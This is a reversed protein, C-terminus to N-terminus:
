LFLVGPSLVGKPDFLTKIKKMESLVNEGYQLKLFDRKIRGIGHEASVAGKLSVVEKAFIQYLEKSKKLEAENKPMINVHFHNNGIHGFISYELGAQDLAKKYFYYIHRLDKDEVAMDTAIKHLSPCDNKRQAIITNIREPVAHRFAKMERADKDEFGAISEDMSAGLTGLIQELKEYVEVLDDESKLDIETYIGCIFEDKLMQACRNTKAISSQLILDFASRDFSEIAFIKLDKEERLAEVFSFMADESKFFQLNYLRLEPRKTLKLELESVIGLTGESGIFLDLLDMGEHFEYGLTNKTKPKYIDPCAVSLEGQQTKLSISNAVVKSQGRELELLEGNALIIKASKIWNRISGYYYSRSGSANTALMGGLSATWETPDVPFFLEYHNEYLYSNLEELTVGAGVKISYEATSDSKFPNSIEKLKDLSILHKSGAPVCAGTLGTRAASVSFTEGAQYHKEVVWALEAESRPSAISSVSDVSFKSEDHLYDRYRSAITMQDDVITCNADKKIIKSVLCNM